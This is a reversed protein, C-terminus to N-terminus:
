KGLNSRAVNNPADEEITNSSVATEGVTSITTKYLLHDKNTMQQQLKQHDRLGKQTELCVIKNDTAELIQSQALPLFRLVEIWAWQFRAGWGAATLSVFMYVTNYSWQDDSSCSRSTDGPHCDFFQSRLCTCLNRESVYPHATTLCLTLVLIVDRPSHKGLAGGYTGLQTGFSFAAGWSSTGPYVFPFKECSSPIQKLRDM